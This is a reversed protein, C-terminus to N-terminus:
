EFLVKIRTSSVQAQEIGDTSCELEDDPTTDDCDFGREEYYEEWIDARETEMIVTVEYEDADPPHLVDPLGDNHDNLTRVLVTRSGGISEGSGGPTYTRVLPFLVREESVFFAPEHTMSTGSTSERFIAGNSYVVANEDTEYVIPEVDATITDNNDPDSADMVTVNVHVPEGTYLKADEMKVETARSPAGRKSIDEVNAQMVDFAREANNAQEFDRTHQLDSFGTVYVTGATVVIIAFVFIFGLSESVARETM